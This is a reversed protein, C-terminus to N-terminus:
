RGRALGQGVLREMLLSGRKGLLASCGELCLGTRNQSVMVQMM